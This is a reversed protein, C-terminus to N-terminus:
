LKLIMENASCECRRTSCLTCTYDKFYWFNPHLQITKFGMKSLYKQSSNNPSEIWSHCVVAKAGMKRLQEISKRSLIKGLGKAQYNKAIFLSKFYGVKENEINWGHPTINYTDDKIWEGPALTLRIGVIKGQDLALLSANINDKIGMLLLKRLEEKTFYNKGIWKDTFILIDSLDKMSVNKIQINM